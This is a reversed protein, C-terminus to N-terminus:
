KSDMDDFNFIAPNADPVDLQVGPAAPDFRQLGSASQVLEEATKTPPTTTEITAGHTTSKPSCLAQSSQTDVLQVPPNLASAFPAAAVSFGQLVRWLPLALLSAASQLTFLDHATYEKAPASAPATPSAADAKLLTFLPVDLLTAALSLRELQSVTYTKEVAPLSSAQSAVSDSAM